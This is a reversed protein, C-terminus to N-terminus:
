HILSMIQLSLKYIITLFIVYLFVLVYGVLCHAATLIWQKDIISGGCFHRNNLRLSAQYPYQGEAASSGGVIKPIQNLSEDGAPLM